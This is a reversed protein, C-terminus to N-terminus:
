DSKSDAGYTRGYGYGYGYALDVDEPDLKTVIAGFVTVQAARLRDISARIARVPDRKAQVVFVVGEVAKGITPADALGLTPPADVVVTDYNQGLERILNALAPGALLDSPNPPNPGAPLLEVGEYPTPQIYQSVNEDGALINALGHTNPTGLRKHLTSARMDSDILIVRQGNRALAVSISIATTSKGEGQSASCTMFSKPMGRSTVIALMSRVSAYAESLMSKRDNLEGLLDESDSNFTAGLLPVGLERPVDAPTRLGEDVHEIVFLTGGAIALGAILALLLNLPLNPSSPSGPIEAKDVISINTADVGAVGIEKYRQLFTDYLQRNTDVERQYIGYQISDGREEDLQARLQAARQALMAERSRAEALQGSFTGSVRSEERNIAADLADIQAKLERARPYSPEFQVLLRQYEANVQARQGRLSAVGANQLAFQRATGGDRARAEALIRDSTAEALQNNVTELNSTALTRVTRTKGDESEDALLVIRNERAYNVLDRESQELKQRLADLRQELFSRADATSAYRSAVSSAIYQEAWADAIRASQAPDASTYAIDVLASGRVPNIAVNALLLDAAVGSAASKSSNSAAPLDALDIGHAVFFAEDRDLRLAQVVREALSRAKLLSYQTNYFETDFDSVQQEVGAVNTIQKQQRAIELRSTATYLPTALFTLILGIAIAGAIIAAVLWKRRVMIHWYQRLLPLREVDDGALVNYSPAPAPTLPPYFADSAM